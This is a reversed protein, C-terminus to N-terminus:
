TQLAEWIKEVNEAIEGKLLFSGIVLNDAGAEALEKANQDNVHGDVGIIFAKDLKICIKKIEKVRDLAKKIFPQGQFGPEVSMILVLDITDWYPNLKELPTQVKIALGVEIELVKCSGIFDDINKEGTEIHAIARKVNVEKLSSVWANPSEVMLHAEINLSTPYKELVTSDITQNQVFKNDIIDIHVWGQNFAKTSNIKEITKSYDEESTALIAPIIQM